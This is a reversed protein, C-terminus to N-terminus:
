CITKSPNVYKILRAELLGHYKKYCHVGNLVYHTNQLIDPIIGEFLGPQNFFASNLAPKHAETM